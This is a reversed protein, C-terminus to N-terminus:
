AQVEGLGILETHATRKGRRGQAMLGQVSGLFLPSERSQSKKEGMQKRKAYFTTQQHHLVPAQKMQEKREGEGTGLKPEFAASEQLCQVQLLCIVGSRETTSPHKLNQRHKLKPLMLARGEEQLLDARVRLHQYNQHLGDTEENGRM